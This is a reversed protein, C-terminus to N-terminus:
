KIQLEFLNNKNDNRLKRLLFILYSIIWSEHKARLCSIIILVAKGNNYKNFIDNQKTRTRLRNKSYKLEHKYGLEFTLKSWRRFTFLNDIFQIFVTILYTSIIKLHKKINEHVNFTSYLVIMLVDIPWFLNLETEAWEKSEDKPHIGAAAQKTGGCHAPNTEVPNVTAVSSRYRFYCFYFLALRRSFDNATFPSLTISHAISVVNSRTFCSNSTSM